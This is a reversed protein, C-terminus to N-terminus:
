KRTRLILSLSDLAREVMGLQEDSPKKVDDQWTIIVFGSIHPESGVRMMIMTKTGNLVKVSKWDGDTLDDIKSFFHKNKITNPIYEGLGTIIVNSYCTLANQPYAVGAKLSLHTISCKLASDGGIYHDGNHFQFLKVRDANLIVRVETLKEQIQENKELLLTLSNYEKTKIREKVKDYVMFLLLVTFAFTDSLTKLTSLDLKM